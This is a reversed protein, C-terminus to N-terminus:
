RIIFKKDNKYPHAKFFEEQRENTKFRVECEGWVTYVFQSKTEALFQDLLDKRIYVFSDNNNYDEVNKLDKLNINGLKDLHTDSKWLIHDLEREIKIDPEMDFGDLINEGKQFSVM